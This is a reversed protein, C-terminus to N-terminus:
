CGTLDRGEAKNAYYARAAYGVSWGVCSNQRGQDGPTPFRDSLDVRDPLFARYEPTRPINALDDESDFILGQGRELLDDGTTNQALTAIPVLLLLVFVPMGLFLRRMPLNSKWAGSRRLKQSSGLTGHDPWETAIFAVAM